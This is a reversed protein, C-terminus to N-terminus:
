QHEVIWGSPLLSTPPQGIVTSDYHGFQHNDSSYGSVSWKRDWSTNPPLRATPVTTLLLDMGAKLETLTTQSRRRVVGALKKAGDSNIGGRMFPRIVFEVGKANLQDVERHLKQCYFCTVDTFVSVYDRTEGKPSFVM